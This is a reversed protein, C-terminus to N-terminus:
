NRTSPKQYEHTSWYAIYYHKSNIVANLARRNGSWATYIKAKFFFMQKINVISDYKEGGSVEEPPRLSVTAHSPKKDSDM